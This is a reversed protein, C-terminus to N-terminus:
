RKCKCRRHVIQNSGSRSTELSGAVTRDTLSLSTPFQLVIRGRRTKYLQGEKMTKKLNLDLKMLGPNRSGRPQLWSGKGDSRASHINPVKYCGDVEAKGIWVREM